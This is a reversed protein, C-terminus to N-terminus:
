PEEVVEPEEPSEPEEEPSEPEPEPEPPTPTPPTYPVGNVYLIYEGQNISSTEDITIAM